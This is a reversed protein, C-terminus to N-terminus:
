CGKLRFKGRGGFVHGCHPRMEDRSAAEILSENWGLIPVM